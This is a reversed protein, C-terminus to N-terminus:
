GGNGENEKMWRGFNCFWAVHVGFDVKLLDAQPFFDRLTRFWFPPIAQRYRFFGISVIQIRSSYVQNPKLWRSFYSLWHSPHDWINHFFINWVVLWIWKAAIKPNPVKTNQCMGMSRFFWVPGVPWWLPPRHVEPLQTDVRLPKLSFRFRFGYIKGNFIPSEQLKERLGFCQYEM